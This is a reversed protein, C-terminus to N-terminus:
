DKFQLSGVVRECTPIMTKYNPGSLSCSVSLIRDDLFYKGSLFYSDELFGTEDDSGVKTVYNVGRVSGQNIERAQNMKNGALLGEPTIGSINDERIADVIAGVGADLFAAGIKGKGNDLITIEWASPIELSIGYVPHEVLRWGNPLQSLKVTEAEGAAGSGERGDGRSAFWVVLIVVLLLSIIGTITLVWRKM